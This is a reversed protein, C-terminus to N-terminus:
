DNEMQECLKDLELTVNKLRDNLESCLIQFTRVVHETEKKCEYEFQRGLTDLLFDISDMDSKIGWLKGLLKKYDEM